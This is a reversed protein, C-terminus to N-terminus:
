AKITLHVFYETSTSRIHLEHQNPYLHTLRQRVNELGIGSRGKEPDDENKAHVSNYVDFYLNETDCSINIKIWSKEKLSIGHKFANEVFPILLMPAVYHNCEKDKVTFDIEIDPSTQTRLKQLSIYNTLYDIEKGLPIKEQQNDHLMFRMLDGLKQVGEATRDANEQLATGYITNLANFLFHPNIQSRLFDIDASKRSVTKQLFRIEKLKEKQQEFYFRSLFWAILLFCLHLVCTFVFIAENRNVGSSGVFLIFLPIGFAINILISPFIITKRKGSAMYRPIFFYTWLFFLVTYFPVLIAFFSPIWYFINEKFAIIFCLLIVWIGTAFVIDMLIKQYGPKGKLVHNHLWIIFMKFLYYCSFLLFFLLTQTFSEKLMQVYAGRQTVYLAFFYYRRWTNALYILLFTTVFIFIAYVVLLFYNNQQVQRPLVVFNLTFFAVSFTAIISLHPILYYKYYDFVLNHMLATQGYKHLLFDAPLSVSEYVKALTYILIISVLVWPEWKKVQM